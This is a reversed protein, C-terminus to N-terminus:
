PPVLSLSEFRGARDGCRAAARRNCGLITAHSQRGGARWKDGTARCTFSFLSMTFPLNSRSSTCSLLPPAPGTGAVMARASHAGPLVHEVVTARSACCVGRGAGVGRQVFKPHPIRPVLAPPSSVLPLYCAGPSLPPISPVHDATAVPLWQCQGLGGEARKCAPVKRQTPKESGGHPTHRSQPHRQNM